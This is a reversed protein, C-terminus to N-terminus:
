HGLVQSRRDDVVAAIAADSVPVGFAGRAGFVGRPEPFVRLLVPYLLLPLGIAALLSLDIDGALRAFVGMFHGPINVMLLAILSSLAWTACGALNWGRYFWYAGGTQRRNFVQMADPLYHGRRVVYGMMMIMMWPTTAVVILSVCTTISDILNFAFRGVFILVSALAGILLTARARTLGPVVSSFDLGTGYLSTTGVSMGSVLALLFLPGFFWHPSVALLGGPYNANALYEPARVAVVASTMLGFGLPVLYLTQAMISASMLRWKGTSRPLYRSWDGLFAGCSIPAAFALLVSGVFASWFREGGGWALGAGPYHFDFSDWFAWTGVTFLISASVVAVKNVLLMLQFGYLCVTLVALAFLGYALAFFLESQPLGFAHGAAGVVADGSTWVSIAFFAIASLLSLFSGVIRGVVGFHASSSVANNTGTIPGFLAMPALLASGLCVGLVMAALGQWFSLGLLIPFIGLVSASLSNGASWELRMFDFVSATREADPIPDIGHREVRTMSVSASASEV